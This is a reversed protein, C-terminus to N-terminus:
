SVMPLIPSEFLNGSLYLNRLNVLASLFAFNHGYLNNDRIDLTRLYVLGSLFSLDEGALGQRPLRLATVRANAQNCTVGYWHDETGPMAFGDPAFPPEKWGTNIKWRDGDTQQYLAILSQREDPSIDAFATTISACLVLGMGM